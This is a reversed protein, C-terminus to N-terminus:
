KDIPLLWKYNDPSCLPNNGKEDCVIITGTTGWLTSRYKYIGPKSFSRVRYQSPTIVGGSAYRDGKFPAINGGNLDLRGHIKCLLGPINQSPPPGVVSPDDFTVDIESDSINNWKVCGGLGVVLQRPAFSPERFLTGPRFKDMVDIIEEIPWGVQVSLSDKLSVGYAYTDAYIMTRGPRGGSFM